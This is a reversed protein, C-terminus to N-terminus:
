PTALIGKYLLIYKKILVEWLYQDKIFRRLNRGMQKLSEPNTFLEVLGTQLGEVSAPVIIGGQIEEIENFGCQDTLLVPTGVIGAELVVISMAERRSPIVLLDSGHCARSKDKEGLFGVFHVRDLIGNAACFQKLITLMGEDPGAIVLHHKKLKERVNCFAHILLDPGKIPNLRGLFLIYPNNGLGNKRRFAEVNSETYKEPNIGNPIIFIREREVGYKIFDAIEDATIAICADAQQLIKYGVILNYLSKMVKSRGFNPLSGAPCVVYPKNCKRAALYALANIITWHGMIHILDVNRVQEMIKKFLHFSPRPLYFRKSMCPITIVRLDYSDAGSRPIIGLDMTLITCNFGAKALFKSIQYTREATGGGSVPDLSM